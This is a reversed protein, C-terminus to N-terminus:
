PRGREEIFRQKWSSSENDALKATPINISAARTPNCDLAALVKSLVQKPDEALADYLIRVPSLNQDDFWHVWARNLASLDEIRAAIAVADYHTEGPPATRELESGDAHRHWLGTQEARLLSIAQDLRDPRTLYLFTTPGFVAEIRELDTRRGPVLLSLQEMFFAFSDRQIRLGFVDSDAMGRRIASQFVAVLAEERSGFPVGDLEYVALWRELSPTHFHSGPRGALGTATLMRCLLTSGSRPTTCIIYSRSPRTSVM